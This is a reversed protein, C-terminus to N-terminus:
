QAATTPLAYKAKWVAIKSAITQAANNLDVYNGVDILSRRYLVNVFLSTFYGHFNIEIAPYFSIGTTLRLLKKRLLTLFYVLTIEKFIRKVPSLYM